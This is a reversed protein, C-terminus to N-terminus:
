ATRSPSACSARPSFIVRDCDRRRMLFSALSSWVVRHPLCIDERRESLFITFLNEAGNGLVAELSGPTDISLEFPDKDTEGCVWADTVTPSVEERKPEADPGEIRIEHDVLGLACRELNDADPM